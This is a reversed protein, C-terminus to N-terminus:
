SLTGFPAKRFRWCFTSVNRPLVPPSESVFPCCAPSPSPPLHTSTRLQASWTRPRRFGCPSKDEHCRSPGTEMVHLLSGQFSGRVDGLNREGEASFIHGRCKCHASVSLCFVDTHFVESVQQGQGQACVYRLFRDGLHWEACSIHPHTPPPSCGAAIGPQQDQMVVLWRCCRIRQLHWRLVKGSPHGTISPHALPIIDVRKRASVVTVTLGVEM